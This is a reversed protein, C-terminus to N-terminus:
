QTSTGHNAGKATRGGFLKGAAENLFGQFSSNGRVAKEITAQPLSAWELETLMNINTETVGVLLARDALRILCVSKKPGLYAHEIVQITTGKQGGLKNGSLKRLMFVALYIIGVIVALSVGIRTLSPLVSETLSPIEMDEEVAATTQAPIEQNNPPPLAAENQAMAPLVALLLLAPIVPWLYTRKLM